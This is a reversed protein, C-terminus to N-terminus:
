YIAQLGTTSAGSVSRSISTSTNGPYAMTGAFIVNPRTGSIRL